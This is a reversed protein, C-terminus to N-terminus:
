LNCRNFAANITLSLLFVCVCVYGTVGISKQLAIWKQLRQQEYEIDMQQYMQLLPFCRVYYITLINRDLRIISTYLGDPSSGYVIDAM